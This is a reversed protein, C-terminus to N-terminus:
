GSCDNCGLTAERMLVQESGVFMWPSFCRLAATTIAPVKRESQTPIEGCDALGNIPVDAEGAAECSGTVTTNKRNHRYSAAYASPSTILRVQSEMPAQFLAEYVEERTMWGRYVVVGPEELRMSQMAATLNVRKDLHDHNLTTCKPAADRATEVNTAFAPDPSLPDACFVAYSASV